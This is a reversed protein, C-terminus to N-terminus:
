MGQQTVAWLAIVVLTALRHARTTARGNWGAAQPGDHCLCGGVARKVPGAMEDEGRVSCRSESERGDPFDAAVAQALAEPGWRSKM